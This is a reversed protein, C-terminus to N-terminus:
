HKYKRKELPTNEVDTPAKKTAGRCNGRVTSCSLNAVRLAQTNKVFEPVNPNENVRGRQCQQGFFNELPDQCIKNSMFRVDCPRRIVQSYFIYLHLLVIKLIRGTLRLGFRTQESLLMKNQEAKQQEFGPRTQVSEEWTDLYPIFTDQLWQMVHNFMLLVHVHM